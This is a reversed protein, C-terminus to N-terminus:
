FCRLPVYGHLYSVKRLNEEGFATGCRLAPGANPSPLTPSPIPIEFYSSKHAYEGEKKPFPDPNPRMSAIIRRDCLRNEFYRGKHPHQSPARRLMLLYTDAVDCRFFAHESEQIVHDKTLVPRFLTFRLISHGYFKVFKHLQLLSHHLIAARRPQIEYYLFGLQPKVFVM